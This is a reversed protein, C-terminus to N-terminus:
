ACKRSIYKRSDDETTHKDFVHTKLTLFYPFGEGNKKLCTNHGGWFSIVGDKSMRVNAAGANALLLREDLKVM